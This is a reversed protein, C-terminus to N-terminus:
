NINQSLNRYQEDFYHLLHYSDFYQYKLYINVLHKLDFFSTEGKRLLILQVCKRLLEPTINESRDFAKLMLAIGRLTFTDVKEVLSTDIKRGNKALAYNILNIELPGFEERRKWYLKEVIHAFDESMTGMRSIMVVIQTFSQM